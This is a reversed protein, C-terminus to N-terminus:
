GKKEAAASPKVTLWRLECETALHPQFTLTNEADGSKLRRVVCHDVTFFGGSGRALANFFRPLDEEHLLSFRLRMLSEQLLLQGANFESAYAYPRQASIDYEVGFIGAEENAIRLSDLWNIRQEDGVFGARALQQYSDLYRAIMDKEEGANQIRLRAERLQGERQTLGRQANDLMNASFYILGATLILTVALVILPIRLAEIDDRTM